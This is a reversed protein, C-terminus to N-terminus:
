GRISGSSPGIGSYGVSVTGLDRAVVKPQKEGKPGTVEACDDSLTLMVGLWRRQCIGPFTDIRGKFAEPAHEWVVPPLVVRLM